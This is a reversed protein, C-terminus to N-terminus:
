SRSLSEFVEIYRDAVNSWSFREATKRANRGLERRLKEDSLICNVKEAIDDPDRKIFFGNYGDRLYDEVGGVRTALVPLGSAMAEMCVLSFTEYHSPLIFIDSAAYFPEVKPVEGTFIVRNRVGLKDALNEFQEKFGGGVVILYSERIKPLAEIMFKLGKLWFNYGVFLFLPADQPIGYRRRIEDRFVSSFKPHFNEIDIGNPIVVIDEPSIRYAKIFEQKGRSCITIAIKFRKLSFRAQEILLRYYEMPNVIFTRDGQKWRYRLQMKKCNHISMVDGGLGMFDMTIGLESKHKRMYRTSLAFFAPTSLLGLARKAYFGSTKATKEILKPCVLHIETSEHPLDIVRGTVLATELGKKAFEQTLHYAIRAFAGGKGVETVVMTVKM